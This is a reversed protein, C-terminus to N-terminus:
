GETGSPGSSSGTQQGTAETVAAPPDSEDQGGVDKPMVEGLQKMLDPLLPLDVSSEVFEFEPGNPKANALAWLLYALTGFDVDGSESMAAFASPISQGTEKKFLRLARLNLEAQYDQGGITLVAM